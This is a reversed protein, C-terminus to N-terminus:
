PQVKADAGAADAAVAQVLSEVTSPSATLAVRLGLREATETTVPGISALRARSLLPVAETGLMACLNTVTSSSCLLVYDIQGRELMRSLEEARETSAGITQYVPVVDVQVGAARLMEPLVERAELARPLLVRTGSAGDGLAGLIAAGLAEAVFREPMIDVALGRSHLADATSRGIAALRAGGFAGADRGLRTLADWLADVANESTFIVVDYSALEAVAHEVPARDPPPVIAISPLAIADAGQARLLASTARIQGTPRMVLVRRGHLPGGAPAAGGHSTDADAAAPRSAPATLPPESDNPSM